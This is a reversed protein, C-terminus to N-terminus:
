FQNRMSSQPETAKDRAIWYSDLPQRRASKRLPDYVMQMVLGAPVIVVAFLVFMVLPNVIRHLVLGLNFWVINLPKLLRPLAFSTVALLGALALASVAVTAHHRWILAVILLVATFVLGTSRESPLKAASAEFREHFDDRAM